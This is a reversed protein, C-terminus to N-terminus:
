SSVYTQKFLLRLQTVDTPAKRKFYYATTKPRQRFVQWIDIRPKDMTQKSRCDTFIWQYRPPNKIAKLLTIM